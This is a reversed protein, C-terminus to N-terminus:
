KENGMSILFPVAWIGMGGYNLTCCKYYLKQTKKGKVFHPM